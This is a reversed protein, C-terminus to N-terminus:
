VIKVLGYNKKGKRLVLTTESALDACTITREIGSIKDNNLYAGNQEVAKRAESKSKFLETRALLDVVNIGAALEAAPIEISPVDSFIAQLDKDQLNEVKEGFFVRTAQLASALGEEGHVYKVVEAALTKQAERKEPTTQISQKLAEIEDLTQFTFFNLYDVVKSDDSNLLFQYMQYPSTIQADLYITGGESKGFKKGQADTVLPIVMGFAQGSECKRVLDTGATINGWQDGGGLQLRVGHERYLHLFDYAQLMQYSFETFSLGAESELRKKVSEKALMESMRFRKGVDRLFELFSFKGIWDHNNLLVASNAGCDFDLLREFQKRQKAVNEAITDMSLLNRESNKGSPDGIMGTAGGLIVVPRHGAKQLRRMTIIAFLNGIQLSPATPDYGTYFSVMERALLDEVAPDSLHEVLGRQRFEPLPNQM